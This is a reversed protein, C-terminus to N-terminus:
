RAVQAMEDTGNATLPESLFDAFAPVDRIIGDSYRKLEQFKGGGLPRLIVYFPLAQNKFTEDRFRQNEEPSTPLPPGAPSTDTYLEVLKYRNLLAKITRQSFM